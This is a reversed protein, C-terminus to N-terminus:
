PYPQDHREDHEDEASEGHGSTRHTRAGDAHDFECAEYQDCGRRCEGRCLLSREAARLSRFFRTRVYTVFEDPQQHLARHGSTGLVVVAGADTGGPASVM